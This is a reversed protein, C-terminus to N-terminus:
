SVSVNAEESQSVHSTGSGEWGVVLYDGRPVPGGPCGRAATCYEEPWAYHSSTSWGSSLVTPAGTTSACDPPGTGSSLWVAAGGDPDNVTVWPCVFGAVDVACAPGNNEFTLTIQVPQGPPYIEQDTSVVISFNKSKCDPATAVPSSGSPATVPPPAPNPATTSTSKPPTATGTPSATTGVNSGTPTGAKATTSSGAPTSSPTSGATASTAPKLPSRDHGAAPHGVTESNGGPGQACGACCAAIVIALVFIRPVRVGRRATVQGAERQELGVTVLLFTQQLECGGKTGGGSGTPDNASVM